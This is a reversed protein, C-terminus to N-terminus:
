PPVIETGAGRRVKGIMLRAVRPFAAIKCVHSSLAATMDCLRIGKSSQQYRGM